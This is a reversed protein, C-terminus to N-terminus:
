NGANKKRKFQRLFRNNTGLLIMKSTYFTFEKLNENTFINDKLIFVALGLKLNGYNRVTIFQKIPSDRLEMRSNVASEQVRVNPMDLASNILKAACEIDTPTKLYVLEIDNDKKEFYWIFEIQREPLGFIRKIEAHISIMFITVKEDIVRLSSQQDFATLIDGLKDELDLYSDYDDIKRLLLAPSKKMIVNKVILVANVFGMLFLGYILILLIFHLAQLLPSEKELYKFFDATIFKSMNEHLDKLLEADNTILYFTFLSIILFLIFGPVGFQKFREKWAM